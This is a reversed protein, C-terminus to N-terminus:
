GIRPFGLNYTALFITHWDGIADKGLRLFKEQAVPYYINGSRLTSMGYRPLNGCGGSGPAFRGVHRDFDPLECGMSRLGLLRIDLVGAEKEGCGLAAFL